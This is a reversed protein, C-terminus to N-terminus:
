VDERTQMLIAPQLRAAQIALTTYAEGDTYDGLADFGAHMTIEAAQQSIWKWDNSLVRDYRSPDWPVDRTLIVHPMTEWEIDTFPRIPIHM